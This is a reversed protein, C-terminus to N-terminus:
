DTTGHNKLWGAAFTEEKALYRRTQEYALNEVKGGFFPISAKFEGETVVSTHAGDYTMTAIGLFTLPASFDVRFTCSCSDETALKWSQRETVTLTDGVIAVALSPMESPLTRIIEVDTTGDAQVSCSSEVSLAGTITARANIYGENTVMERVQIPNAAYVQVFRLQTAMLCGRRLTKFLSRLRTIPSTFAASLVGLM